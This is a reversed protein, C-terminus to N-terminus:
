NGLELERRIKQLFDRILVREEENLYNEKENAKKIEKKISAVMEKRGEKSTFFSLQQDVKDIHKGLTLEFVLIIAITFIIVKYIYDRM